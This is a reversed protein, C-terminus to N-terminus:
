KMRINTYRTFKVQISTVVKEIAGRKGQPTSRIPLTPPYNKLSKHLKERMSMMMHNPSMPSEEKQCLIMKMMMMMMKILM